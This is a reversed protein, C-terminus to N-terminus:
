THKEITHNRFDLIIKGIDESIAIFSCDFGYKKCELQSIPKEHQPIKDKEEPIQMTTEILPTRELVMM